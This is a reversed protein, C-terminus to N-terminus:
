RKHYMWSMRERHKHNWGMQSDERERNLGKSPGPAIVLQRGTIWRSAWSVRERKKVDSPHVGGTMGGREIRGLCSELGLV